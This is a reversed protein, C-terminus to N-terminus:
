MNEIMRTAFESTKAKTAGQMQREFDYTVYKQGITKEMSSEIMRAAEKWGLFDFMMVGSLMVSGPNIVDKDAYKPATGHTAEFVAYGDGINAGPAIGLGGVQAAAADSIYDGNLNTTALVSYDSPRIIIQQFISDAIRDNVLIKSKWAGNGHTAGIRTIVDNVEAIISDSFAKPAFDIGPEIMAANAEATLGPNADLNGLIWSERETVTQDRFEQTAVEYGWDRFAGETFKQINGKHVLTVTKLKNELAHKIAARVLRKSGTISIPKVGVGSDLRVKKKTGQLMENNVFFIFKEAEPTGERFEIGAYIDETNERFIVIDVLEPHKVPSPVGAYYKVPRICQYLDMLQRLAVNLSRIGGGVPTTLPGKISVRFDVTAKVTDDPLWNQTQRFAKEGALVEYWAVKRKGGYAKEVAADFVRQSAKWIDRGTGDGEIFPIIPNDPVQYQGDTYQIAAGDTPVPIGNYSTQM